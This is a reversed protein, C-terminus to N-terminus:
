ISISWRQANSYHEVLDLSSSHSAMSYRSKSLVSAICNAYDFHTIPFGYSDEPYNILPSNFADRLDIFAPIKSLM